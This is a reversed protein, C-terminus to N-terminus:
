RLGLQRDLAANRCAIKAELDALEYDQAENEHLYADALKRKAACLQDADGHSKEILSLERKAQESESPSCGALALALILVSRIM